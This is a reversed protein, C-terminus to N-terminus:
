QNGYVEGEEEEQERIRSIEEKCIGEIPFSGAETSLVAQLHNNVISGQLSAAMQHLPTKLTGQMQFGYWLAFEGNFLNTGSLLNLSICGKEPDIEALGKKIGMPSKLQIQYVQNAM